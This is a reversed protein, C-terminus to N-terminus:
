ASVSLYRRSWVMRKRSCLKGDSPLIYGFLKDKEGSDFWLFGGRITKKSGDSQDQPYWDNYVMICKSGQRETVGKATEIDSNWLPNPRRKTTGPSAWSPPLTPPAFWVLGAGALGQRNKASAGESKARGAAQNQLVSTAFGAQEPLEPNRFSGTRRQRMGDKVKPAVVSTM